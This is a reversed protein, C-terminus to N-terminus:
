GHHVVNTTSEGYRYPRGLNKALKKNFVEDLNERPLLVRAGDIVYFLVDILEESLADEWEEKSAFPKGKVTAKKWGKKWLDGSEGLEIFAFLMKNAFDEPTNGFGKSIVLEGIQRKAEELTPM